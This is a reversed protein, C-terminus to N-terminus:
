CRSSTSSCRVGIDVSGTAWWADLLRVQVFPTRSRRQRCLSLFALVALVFAAAVSGVGIINVLSFFPHRALPAHSGADDGHPAHDGHDGPSTPAGHPPQGEIAAM